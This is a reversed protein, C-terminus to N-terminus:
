GAVLVRGQEGAGLVTGARRHRPGDRSVQPTEAGRCRPDLEELSYIVKGMRSRKKFDYCTAARNTQEGTGV